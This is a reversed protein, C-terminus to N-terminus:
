RAESAARLTECSPSAPAGVRRLVTRTRIRITKDGDRCPFFIVQWHLTQELAYIATKTSRINPSISLVHVSLATRLTSTRRSRSGIRILSIHVVYWKRSLCLLRGSRALKKVGWINGNFRGMAWVAFHLGVFKPLINYFIYRFLWTVLQEVCRANNDVFCPEFISVLSRQFAKIPLRLALDLTLSTAHVKIILVFSVLCFCM